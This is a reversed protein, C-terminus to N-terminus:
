EIKLTWGETPTSLICRQRIVTRLEKHVAPILKGLTKYVDDYEKPLIEPDDIFTERYILKNPQGMFMRLVRRHQSSLYVPQGLYTTATGDDVLGNYELKEYYKSAKREKPKVIERLKNYDINRLKFRMYKEAMDQPLERIVGRIEEDSLPTKNKIKSEPLYLRYVHLSFNPYIPRLVDERLMLKQHDKEWALYEPSVTIEFNFYGDRKGQRLALILNDISGTGFYRELEYKSVVRNQIKSPPVSLLKLKM